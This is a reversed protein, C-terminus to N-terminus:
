TSALSNAPRSALGVAATMSLWLALPASFPPRREIGRAKVRALLDFAALAVDEDIGEAEEQADDDMGGVYLVAVTGSSHQALGASGKREDFADVGIAAVLSRFHGLDDGFGARPRQFDDLSGVAVAEDDEGFAPGDFSGEGPDAAAATQALIELTV